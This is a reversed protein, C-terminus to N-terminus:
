ASGTTTNARRGVLELLKFGDFQEAPTIIDATYITGDDRRIGVGLVVCGPYAPDADDTVAAYRAAPREDLLAVVRKRRAEAGPM